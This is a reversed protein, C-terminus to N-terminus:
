SSRALGRLLALAGDARWSCLRERRGGIKSGRRVVSRAFYGFLVRWLKETTVNENIVTYTRRPHLVRGV